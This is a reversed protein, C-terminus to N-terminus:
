ASSRARARGSATSACSAFFREAVNTRMYGRGGFIQLCRDACRCAAESVFLKAMSAKAHVVKPDAGADALRAVELALLRGPPRTPPRTPSRSRSARTTWSGAARGARAPAGLRHGGRDPAVDLGRRARRHRPAGRHVVLAAPRRRRRPRRDRRGRRVEVGTFRITPHGHPYTHSFPPDDVVEIGDRERDVLFLTPLREGDVIANAMVIYVAAVDGYTVFWKEGDIVWGGDTRRATTAIRSPDSGAEAETVAYADHLEGRLAPQLYREIQEPTGSALVNYAGPM